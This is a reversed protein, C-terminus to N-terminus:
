NKGSFEPILSVELEDLVFVVDLQPNVPVFSQLVVETILDHKSCGTPLLINRETTHKMNLQPNM